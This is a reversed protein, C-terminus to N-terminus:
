DPPQLEHRSIIRWNPVALTIHVLYLKDITINGPLQSHIEKGMDIREERSSTGYHLSIHPRFDGDTSRSFTQNTRQYALVLDASSELKLYFDRFYYPEMALGTAKASFSKLESALGSTKTALDEVQGHLGSLLTIHPAFRPGSFRESLYDIAEAFQREDATDPVLWLSYRGGLQQEQNDDTAEM